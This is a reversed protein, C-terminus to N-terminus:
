TGRHGLRHSSVRYCCRTLVLITALALWFYCNKFRWDLKVGRSRWVHRSQFMYDVCLVVFVFLTLVQFALAALPIDVGATSKGNSTSSMAGGTAQLVLLIIDCPIFIWYFLKMPFRSALPSIYLARNITLRYAESTVHLPCACMQYLMLYIAASFFVPGHHHACDPFHLRSLGLPQQLAPGTWHLRNDRRHLGAGCCVILGLIPVM